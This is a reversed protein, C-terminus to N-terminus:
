LKAARLLKKSLPVIYAKHNELSSSKSNIQNLTANQYLKSSYNGSLDSLAKGQTVSPEFIIAETLVVLHPKLDEVLHNYLESINIMQTSTIYNYLLASEGYKLIIDCVFLDCLMQLAENTKSNAGVNKIGEKFSLATLYLAHMISVKAIDM